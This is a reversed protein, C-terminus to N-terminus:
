VLTFLCAAIQHAIVDPDGAADITFNARNYFGSRQQLKTDIFYTLALTNDKYPEILPRITNGNKLRDALVQPSLKLYVSCGKSEIWDMNQNHCPTGGGLAIVYKDGEFSKLWDTERDRFGPEGYLKFLDAVSMGSAAEIKEDSDIFTYGLKDALIKGVTSKGAGM